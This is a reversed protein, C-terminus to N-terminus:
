LNKDCAPKGFYLIDADRNIFGRTIKNKRYLHEDHFGPWFKVVAVISKQSHCYKLNKVGRWMSSLHKARALATVLFKMIREWVRMGIRRKVPRVPQFYWCWMDNWKWEWVFMRILVHIMWVWMVSKHLGDTGTPILTLWFLNYVHQWILSSLNGDINDCGALKM